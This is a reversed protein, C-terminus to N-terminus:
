SKREAENKKALMREAFDLREELEAVRRELGTTDGSGIQRQAQEVDALRQELEDQNRRRSFPGFGIGVGRSFNKAVSIIALAIVFGFLWGPFGFSM